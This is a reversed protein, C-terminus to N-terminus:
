CKHLLARPLRPFVFSPIHVFHRRYITVARSLNNIHMKHYRARQRFRMAWQPCACLLSVILTFSDNCKWQLDVSECVSGGHILWISRVKITAHQIEATENTHYIPNTLGEILHVHYAQLRSTRFLQMCVLYSGRITCHRDKNYDKTWSLKTMTCM